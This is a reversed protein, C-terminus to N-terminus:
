LLQVVKDIDCNGICAVGANDMDLMEYAMRNAESLELNKITRINNEPSYLVNNKISKAFLYVQENLNVKEQLRATLINKKILEFEEQGFGEVRLRSMEEILIEAVIEINSSEFISYIGMSQFNFNDYAFGNVNYALGKVERLVYILRKSLVYNCMSQIIFKNVISYEISRESTYKRFGLSLISNSGKYNPNFYVSPSSENKECKKKVKKDEINNFLRRIAENTEQENFDGIVILSANEPVYIEEIKKEVENKKFSEICEKAGIIMRGLGSNGYLAQLTRESIQNFSSMTSAYERLIVKRENEFLNDDYIRNEFLAEKLCRFYIDIGNSLGTFYFFTSDKTTEANYIAGYKLLEELYTGLTKNSTNKNMVLHEMFHSVGNTYDDENISGHHIIMGTTVIEIGRLQHLYVRMGNELYYSMIQFMKRGVKKNQLLLERKKDIYKKM